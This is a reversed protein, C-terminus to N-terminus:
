LVWFKLTARWLKLEPVFDDGYAHVMASFQQENPPMAVCQYGGISVVSGDLMRAVTFAEDETLGVYEVTISQRKRDWPFTQIVMDGTLTLTMTRNAPGHDPRDVILPYVAM